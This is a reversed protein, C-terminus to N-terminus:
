LWDTPMPDCFEDAGMVEFGCNRVYEGDEDYEEFGEDCTCIAASCGEAKHMRCQLREIWAPDETMHCSYKKAIRKAMNPTGDFRYAFECQNAFERHSPTFYFM